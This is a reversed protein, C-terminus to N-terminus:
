QLIGHLWLRLLVPAIWLAYGIWLAKVGTHIPQGQKHEGFYVMTVGGICVFAVSSIFIYIAWDGDSM